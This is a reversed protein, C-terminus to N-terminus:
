YKSVTVDSPYKRHPFFFAIFHEVRWYSFETRFYNCTDLILSINSVAVKDPWMLIPFAQPFPTQIEVDPLNHHPINKALFITGGHYAV